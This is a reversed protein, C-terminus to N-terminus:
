GLWAAREGFRRCIYQDLGLARGARTLYVVGLITIPMFYAWPWDHGFTALFTNLLFFIGVLSFFRTFLGVLLAFGLIFEGVLQFPAFVARVPLIVQNIFAAYWGLPNESQPFVSTFFYVLGDPTYYGKLLNSLWSTLIVLGVLARLLALWNLSVLPPATSFRKLM